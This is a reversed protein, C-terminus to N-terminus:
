LGASGRLLMENRATYLLTECRSTVRARRILTQKVM